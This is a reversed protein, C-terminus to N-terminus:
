HNLVIGEVTHRQWRDIRHICASFASKYLSKSILIKFVSERLIGPSNSPCLPVKIIHGTRGPEHVLLPSSAFFTNASIARFIASCSSNYISAYSPNTSSAAAASSASSITYPDPSTFTRLVGDFNLIDTSAIFVSSAHARSTHGVNTLVSSPFIHPVPQHKM